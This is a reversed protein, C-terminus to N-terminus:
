DQTSAALVVFELVEEKTMEENNGALLSMAPSAGVAALYDEEEPPLEPSSFSHWAVMIAALLALAPMLRRSLWVFDVFVSRQQRMKIKNFLRVAFFPPVPYAPQQRLRLSVQQLEELQQRCSACASVHQAIQRLDAPPLARDKYASLNEASIHSSM